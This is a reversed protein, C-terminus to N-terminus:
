KIWLDIPEDLTSFLEANKFYEYIFIAPNDHRKVWMRVADRPQVNLRLISNPNNDGNYGHINTTFHYFRMKDLNNNLLVPKGEDIRLTKKNQKHEQWLHMYIKYDLELINARNHVINCLSEMELRKPDSRMVELSEELYKKARSNIVFLGINFLKDLRIPKDEISCRFMEPVVVFDYSKCTELLDSLDDLFLTDADVLLECEANSELLGKWKFGYQHYYMKDSWNDQNVKVVQIGIKSLHQIQEATLPQISNDYNYVRFNVKNGYYKYSKYMVLFQNFYYQNIFCSVVM